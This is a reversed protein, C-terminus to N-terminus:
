VVTSRDTMQNLDFHYGAESLEKIFEVFVGARDEVHVSGFEESLLRLGDETITGEDDSNEVFTVYMNQVHYNM